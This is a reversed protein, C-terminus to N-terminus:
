ERTIDGTVNIEAPLNRVVEFDDNYERFNGNYKITYNTPSNVIIQVSGTPNNGSTMTGSGMSFIVGASTWGLSARDDIALFEDFDIANPVETDHITYTGGVSTGTKYYLDFSVTATSTTGNLGTVSITSRDFFQGNYETVAPMIIESIAMSPVLQFETGDYRFSTSDAQSSRDDDSSCSVIAIAAFFLIFKKM